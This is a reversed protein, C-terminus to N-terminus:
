ARSPLVGRDDGSVLVRWPVRVFGRDYPRVAKVRAALCLRDAGIAERICTEEAESFLAEVIEKFTTDASFQLMAGTADTQTEATDTAATPAVGAQLATMEEPQLCPLFGFTVVPDLEDEFLLAHHPAVATAICAMTM